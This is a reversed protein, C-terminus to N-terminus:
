NKKIFCGVFAIVTGLAALGASYVNNTAVSLGLIGLSIGFLGLRVGKM